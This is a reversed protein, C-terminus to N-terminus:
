LMLTARLGTNDQSCRVPVTVWKAWSLPEIAEALLPLNPSPSRRGRRVAPAPARPRSRLKGQPPLHLDIDIVESKLSGDQRHRRRRDHRALREGLRGLPGTARRHAGAVHPRQLPRADTGVLQVNRGAGRRVPAFSEGWSGWPRDGHRLGEGEAPALDGTGQLGRHADGRRTYAQPCKAGAAVGVPIM